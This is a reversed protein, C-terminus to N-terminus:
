RSLAALVASRAVEFKELSRLKVEEYGRIIAPAELLELCADINGTNAQRSILTVDDAYRAILKRELRRMSTFGFPDLPTGRLRRMAALTVFTPTAVVPPLAIKRKLGFAKLIPPHLRYRM